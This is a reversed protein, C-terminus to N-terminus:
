PCYPNPGDGKLGNDKLAPIGRLIADFQACSMNGAQTTRDCVRINRVIPGISPHIAYVSKASPMTNRIPARVTQIANITGASRSAISVEARAM